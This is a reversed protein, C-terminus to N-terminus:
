KEHFLKKILKYDLDYKSEMSEIGLAMDKRRLYRSLKRIELKKLMNIVKWYDGFTAHQQISDKKIWGFIENLESFLSMHSKNTSLVLDFELLIKEASRYENEGIDVLPLQESNSFIRTYYNDSMYINPKEIFKELSTCDTYGSYYDYNFNSVSRRLPDRLCTILFVRPDKILINFNPSGQETAIFTVGNTECEDIFNTLEKEDYELLSIVVGDETKPNGNGHKDYLVEGNQIAMNVILTGASKHLHQFWILRYDDEVDNGIRGCKQYLRNKGRM